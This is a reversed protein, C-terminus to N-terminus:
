SDCSQKASRHTIGPVDLLKEEKVYMYPGDMGRDPLDSIWLKINKKNIKNTIPSSSIINSL